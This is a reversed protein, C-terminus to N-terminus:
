IKWECANLIKDCNNIFEFLKGVKSILILLVFIFLILASAMYISQTYEFFTKADNFIYVFIFILTLNLILFGMSIKGNFPYAQTALKPSIGVTVFNKRITKFVEMKSLKAEEKSNAM